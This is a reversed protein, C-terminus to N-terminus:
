HMRPTSGYYVARHSGDANCFLSAIGTIMIYLVITRGSSTSCTKRPGYPILEMYALRPMLHRVSSAM